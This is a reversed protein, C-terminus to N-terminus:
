PAKRPYTFIIPIISSTSWDSTQAAAYAHLSGDAALYLEFVKSTQWGTSTRIDYMPGGPRLSDPIAGPNMVTNWTNENIADLKSVAATLMCVYANYTIGTPTLDVHSTWFTGLSGSLDHYHCESQDVWDYDSGAGKVMVDGSVGGPTPSPLGPEGTLGVMGGPGTPGLPGPPGAPAAMRFTRGRKDRAFVPVIPVSM